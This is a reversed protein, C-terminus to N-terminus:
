KQVSHEKKIFKMIYVNQRTIFLAIIFFAVLIGSKYVFSLMINSPIYFSYVFMAGLATIICICIDPLFGSFYPFLRYGFSFKILYISEVFFKINLSISICISLIVLNQPITGCIIALITIGIHIVGSHFMEKTKGLSQYISGSLANVMQAWLCLSLMKFPLISEGWQNGFFILILEKGAFYCLLSVFIGILSFLKVITMYRDYIYKKDDKHESLVPHLIPTLVHPINNVPYRMLTYSKNYYALADSGILKGTLLNDLNQAFYNCMNYMYQNWSYSWVSKLPQFDFRFKMRLKSGKLNWIFQAFASIISQAVLSYYKFGCLAMVIAVLGSFLACIIMRFSVLDFRHERMLCANPVMNLSNFLISLSLLMCIPIYVENEYFHSIPRSCEMFILMLAISLYVSFSFIDNVQSHTLDRRQIVATGLGINCLTTFLTTFVTIVAVVGYDAPTLLRSLIASVIIGVFVTAYKAVAFLITQQKLSKVM